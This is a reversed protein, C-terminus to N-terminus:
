VQFLNWTIPFLDAHAVDGADVIRWGAWLTFNELLTDFEDGRHATDNHGSNFFLHDIQGSATVGSGCRSATCRQAGPYGLSPDSGGRVSGPNM